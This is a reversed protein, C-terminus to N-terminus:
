VSGTTVHRCKMNVHCNDLSFYDHRHISIMVWSLKIGLTPVHDSSLVSLSLSSGVKGYLDIIRTDFDVKINRNGEVSNLDAANLVYGGTGISLLDNFGKFTIPPPAGGM